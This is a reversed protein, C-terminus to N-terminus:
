HVLCRPPALVVRDASRVVYGNCRKANGRKCGCGHVLLRVSEKVQEINGALADEVVKWGHDHM